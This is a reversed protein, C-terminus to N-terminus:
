TSNFLNPQKNRKRCIIAKCAYDYRLKKIEKTRLICGPILNFSDRSCIMKKCRRDLIVAILTPKPLYCRSRTLRIRALCVKFLFFCYNFISVLCSISIEISNTENWLQTVFTGRTLKSVAYILSQVQSPTRIYDTISNCCNCCNGKYLGYPSTSYQHQLINNAFNLSKNSKIDKNMM